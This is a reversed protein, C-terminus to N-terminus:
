YARPNRRCSCQSYNTGGNETLTLQLTCLFLNNVRSIDPATTAATVAPDANSAFPTALASGGAPVSPKSVMLGAVPVSVARIDEMVEPGQGLGDSAASRVMTPGIPASGAVAVKGALLGNGTVVM